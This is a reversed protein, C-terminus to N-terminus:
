AFERYPPAEEAGQARAFTAYIDRVWASNISWGGLGAQQVARCFEIALERPGIWAACPPADAAQRWGAELAALAQEAREMPSVACQSHQSASPPPERAGQSPEHTQRWPWWAM